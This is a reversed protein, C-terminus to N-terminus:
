TPEYKGVVTNNRAIIEWLQAMAKAASALSHQGLITVRAKERICQIEPEYRKHFINVLLASVEEPTEWIFGNYGSKILQSHNSQSTALVISGCGM